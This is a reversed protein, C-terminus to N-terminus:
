RLAELRDLPEEPQDDRRQVLPPESGEEFARRQADTLVGRVSSRLKRYVPKTAEDVAGRIADLKQQAADDGLLVLRRVDALEKQIRAIEVEAAAVHSRVKERQEASLTSVELVDRVVSDRSPKRSGSVRLIRETDYAAVLRAAAESGLEGAAAKVGREVADGMRRSVERTRKRLADDDAEASGFLWHEEESRVREGQISLVQSVAPDIESRAQAMAAMAAQQDKPELAARALVEDLTPWPITDDRDVAALLRASIFSDWAGLQDTRLIGKLEGLYTREIEARDRLYREFDPKVVARGTPTDNIKPDAEMAREYRVFVRRRALALQYQANDLADSAASAQEQTLSFRTRLQALDRSSFPSDWFSVFTATIREDLGTPSGAPAGRPVATASSLIVAVALM